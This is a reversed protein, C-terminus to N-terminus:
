PELTQAFLCATFGLHRGDLTKGRAFNGFAKLAAKFNSDSIALLFIAVLAEDNEILGEERCTDYIACVRLFADIKDRQGSFWGFKPVHPLAKGVAVSAREYRGCFEGLEQPPLGTLTALGRAFEDRSAIGTNM